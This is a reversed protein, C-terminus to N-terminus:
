NTSVLQQHAEQSVEKEQDLQLKLGLLENDRGKQNHAAYDALRSITERSAQQLYILILYM